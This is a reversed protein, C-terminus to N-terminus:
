ADWDGGESGINEPGSTYIIDKDEFTIIILEPREFEKKKEM